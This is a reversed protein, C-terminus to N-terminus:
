PCGRFPRHWRSAIPPEAPPAPPLDQDLFKIRPGEAGARPETYPPPPLETAAAPYPYIYGRHFREFELGADQDERDETLCGSSAPCGMTALTVDAYRGAAGWWVGSMVGACLLWAGILAPRTRWWRRRDRVEQAAQHLYPEPLGVESTPRAHGSGAWTNTAQEYKQAARRVVERWERASLGHFPDM